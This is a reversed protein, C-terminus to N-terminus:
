GLLKNASKYKETKLRVGAEDLVKIAEEVKKLHEKKPAKTVILIDNIFSFTNKTKHLINDMIKQFEPPMITLRYFETNFTYRETSEGEIIQFNCHKASEPHLVTQGYAYQLDLSSFVEGEKTTNMTEEVKEM